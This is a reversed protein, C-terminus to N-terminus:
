ILLTELGEAVTYHLVTWDRAITEAPGLAKLLISACDGQRNMIARLLPTTQDLSQWLCPHGSGYHEILLNLITSNGLNAAMHWVTMGNKDVAEAASHSRVLRGLLTHDTTNSGVARHLATRGLDDQQSPDSGLNLLLEISDLSNHSVALHLLTESTKPFRMDVSFRVDRTLNEFENVPGFRIRYAITEYFLGESMIASPAVKQVVHVKQKQAITLLQMRVDASIKAGKPQDIAELIESIDDKKLESLCEKPLVAGYWILSTFISSLDDYRMLAAFELRSDSITDPSCKPGAKLIIDVTDQAGKGYSNDKFGWTDNEPSYFCAKGLLACELPVSVVSRQNIKGGQEILWACISGCHLTAAAYLTTYERSCITDIWKDDKPTFVGFYSRIHQYMFNILNATKQPHFLQQMREHVAPNDEVGTTYELLHQTAYEFFVYGEFGNMALSSFRNFSPLCLYTLCTKALLIKDDGCLRFEKLHEDDPRIAELFELVTFHALELSEFPLYTRRILSGCLRLLEEVDVFAEPDLQTDCEDMSVIEVLEEVRLKSSAYATWPLTRTMLPIDQEHIRHLLREYTEYLTSPLETLAQRRRTDTPLTCLHDLQCAVWRFMENARNVLQDVIEDKLNSSKVRLKRTRVRDEMEARVYHELDRSHAAIEIHNCFSPDLIERIDVEDRSLYCLSVIDHDDALSRLTQSVNAAGDGMGDGCEDLGDVVIRVDEFTKAMEKILEVLEDVEPSRPLQNQPKLTSAYAQLLQFSQENQRALQSTITGLISVLKQSKKDKYDCYFFAVARQQTAQHIWSTFTDNEILWFGTNSHRLKSNAQFIGQPNVFPFSDLTRQREEDIAMRTEIDAKERLKAEVDHIEQLLVDQTALRKLLATMSDASLVFNLNNRHERIENTVQKLNVVKSPWTLKQMKKRLTLTKKNGLGFENIDAELRYLTALCANVHGPRISYDQTHNSELDEAILHM